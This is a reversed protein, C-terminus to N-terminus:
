RNVYATAQGYVAPSEERSINEIIRGLATEVKERLPAKLRKVHQFTNLLRGTIVPNLPALEIVSDAVWNIGQGTWVMKNNVAMPMFLARCWTPQTIDFGPRTKETEIMGFVDDRTGSSIIRLYNAYGSLHDHWADYVEELVRRRGPASSRNLAMLAAVRDTATTAKLFHDLIVDHSEPSDDVVILDLLVNKLMREEIGDKPSCRKSLSYTDMHAFLECLQVRYRRNVAHMLKERAIVLEQFWTSYNRNMPQEDIRLFYAKLSPPLSLDSLIKGYIVLWEESVDGDPNELLRVRERDTLQRMADVRSCTNPDLKAQLSMTVPTANAHIFTGYFTYDRNMSAFAPPDTINGFVLEGETDRLQCVMGTGEIDNGKVDVLAVQIPLHFPEQGPPV